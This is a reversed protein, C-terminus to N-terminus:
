EEGAGVRLVCVLLPAAGREVDEGGLRQVEVPALLPRGDVVAVGGLEAPELGAAALVGLRGLEAPDPQEVGPAVLADLGRGEDLRRKRGPRHRRRRLDDLRQARLHVRRLPCTSISAPSM